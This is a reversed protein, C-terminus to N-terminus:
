GSSTPAAHDTGGAEGDRGPRGLSRIRTVSWGKAGQTASYVVREGDRLTRFGEPQEIVSFHVFIDQNAPGIVFGFGKRPDFWKVAGEVDVLPGAGQGDASPRAAAGTPSAAQSDTM